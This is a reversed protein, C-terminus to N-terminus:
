GQPVPPAYGSRPKPPKPHAGCDELTTLMADHEAQTVWLRYETKIFIQTAVYACHSRDASRHDEAARHDLRALRPARRGSADEHAVFM